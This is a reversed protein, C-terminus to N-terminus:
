SLIAKFYTFYLNFIVDIKIIIYFQFLCNLLNKCNHISLKMLYYFIINNNKNKEYGIKKEYKIRLYSFIIMIFIKLLFESKM